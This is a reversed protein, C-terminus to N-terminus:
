RVYTRAAVTTQANLVLTDPAAVSTTRAQMAITVMPQLNSGYAGSAPNVTFPDSQPSLFFLLKDITTGAATVAQATGGNLSLVLCKVSSAPCINVNTELYFDERQGSSNILVLHDAPIKVGGASAYYAYNIKGTRVERVLLELAYRIDAQAATVALVRRQARNALLFIGSAAAVAISFVGLVVVLEM